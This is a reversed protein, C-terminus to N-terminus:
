APLPLPRAVPVLGVLGARGLHFQERLYLPVIKNEEGFHQHEFALFRTCYSIGEQGPENM